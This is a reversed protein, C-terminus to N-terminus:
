RSSGEGASSELEALIREMEAPEIEQAQRQAVALALQAVTPHLFLDRLPLDVRFADRARSVVQTALLSHGGLEFFNDHVGVREIKLVKKWIEVLTHEAPTRPAEYASDVDPRNMDPLPLRTLDVKGGATRPLKELSVFFSPIMHSPLTESLMRRLQSLTLPTIPDRVIYGTLRTEGPAAERARVAAERVGPIRGLAAEVEGLEVRFGRVKVQGDIRGLYELVGDPRYRVRDGTRYLRGDGTFRDPLFRARTLEPRKRYGRALGVGGIYLEGVFGTPVPEGTGDLVYARVNNIPRGVPVTSLLGEGEAAGNWFTAAITAETPGYGNLFEVRGNALKQWQLFREPLAREGGVIMMRLSPPLELREASAAEVLEHWYATPLDLVTLNWERCRALFTEATGIMDESRLVLTAGATLTSFVEEAATDFSLSAFQLVRDGPRLRFREVAFSVYNTLSSHEIEVGKPVGTSGSTYIIYALSNPSTGSDVSEESEGAIAESCEELFVTRTSADEPPAALGRRTLLLAAGSDELMFALREAPYTPDLPLYAGGAKLIGFLAVLTDLSRELCLGVPVDPGVGLGRLYSALQNSRRHLEGYTLPRGEFEVAVREPTREAQEAMLHHVAKERPYETETQNWEVLVQHRESPTLLPLQSLRRDPDAAIGELLMELHKLMRRVTSADFLERRYELTCSLGDSKAAASLSLDFHAAERSIRVGNVTLGPIEIEKGANQLSFMVQFLPTVSLSRVPQLEEVLKEFPVEQHAYADIAVERIRGLLERFTPDGSLDSRLVLTNVFFGILGETEIQTRGAIPSGIWIDDQGTYRALLTQFAALLTMFLTAGQARSIANLEDLLAGSFKVGEVAGRFSPVAPRPRDTPLDLQTPIGSLQERWYSLERALAEGQFGQRQWIAYDAYQIPLEPLPSGEGNRFADYLVGLERLFVDVSWGDSVIHHMTVVLVHDQDQLRFLKARLLPGEALDFPRAAELSALRSAENERQDPPIDALDTPLLDIPRPPIVVQVPVGDRVPFRTRLADHRRLIENLSEALANTNLHGRLRLAVPLNYSSVGPELYDLFWLRQQAFSAPFAVADGQELSPKSNPVQTM